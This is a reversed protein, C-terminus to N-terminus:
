FDDPGADDEIDEEDTGKNLFVDAEHPTSDLVLRGEKLVLARQCLKKVQNVSHSVLFLTRGEKHLQTIKRICKRKFPADGVALAEDILFVDSDAHVAVAFGLRMYMGSSYHRVETDLFKGVDAFAVIDDLKANLEKESMGIIAGNLFINERGTLDPDFGAGVGILGAIRGAVRVTGTDPRMVGSVLKLLTSKGSGNHGMLGISEGQQVTFSIDDLAHFSDKLPEGRYLNTVMRKLTKAHRLTFTKSVSDVVISTTM